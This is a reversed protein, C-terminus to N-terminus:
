ELRQDIAALYAVVLRYTQYYDALSVNEITDQPSHLIHLTSQTLSHVTMAPIKKERFPESDTTGVKDVDVAGLPINLQNAVAALWNAMQRDSHSLWIQTKGLGVTDLNVMARVRSRDDGLQKVFCQSGLLGKEEGTFAVLVFRHKRPSEALGQYFSPLLSAGSWNDVVGNGYEIMDFHAGVVITSDTAGKLTCILNPAKTGRVTQESVSDDKCGAEEFLRKIAPERTSNKTTYSRLRTEILEKPLFNVTVGQSFALAAVLSPFFGRM